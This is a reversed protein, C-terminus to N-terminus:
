LEFADAYVVRERVFDRPSTSYSPDGSIPYDRLYTEVETVLLRHDGDLAGSPLAVTGAWTAHFPRRRILFSRSPSQSLALTIEPGIAEWGLDGPVGPRRRQLAVRVTTSPVEDDDGLLDAGLQLQIPGPLEAVKNRASFGSVEVLARDPKLTVEATRDPALQIFDTMVVRSLHANPVSHAQYRALALRVFPFYTDGPDIEIDCYWLRREADFHVDHAAVVVAVQAPLEALTLGGAWGVHSPFGAVTPPLEPPASRM